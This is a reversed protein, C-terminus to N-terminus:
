YVWMVPTTTRTDLHIFDKAVGIGTFGMKTAEKLLKYREASYIVRIDVAKGKTHLGGGKPKNREASHEESRYGSTIVFPFDCRERLEDLLALFDPSMSNEGTEKCTFEKIDFHRM